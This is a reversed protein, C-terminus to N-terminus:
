KTQKEFQKSDSKNFDYEVFSEKSWPLKGKKLLWVLVHGVAILDDKRSQEGGQHGNLSLFEPTGITGKEMKHKIHNGTRPCIYRKSLGFDIMYITNEKKGRGILINEPKIDRNVFSNEHFAELRDILKIAFTLVTKLGFKRDCFDFLKLLDPGL